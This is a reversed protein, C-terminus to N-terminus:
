IANVNDDEDKGNLWWYESKGSMKIIANLFKDSPTKGHTVISSVYSKNVQAITAIDSQKIGNEKMWTNLRENFNM